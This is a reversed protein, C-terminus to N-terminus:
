SFFEILYKDILVWAPLGLSFITVFQKLLMIKMHGILLRWMCKPPCLKQRKPKPLTPFPTKNKKKKQEWHTGM